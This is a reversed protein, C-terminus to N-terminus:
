NRYLFNLVLNGYTMGVGIFEAKIESEQVEVIFRLM